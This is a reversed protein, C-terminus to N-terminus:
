SAEGLGPHANLEHLWCFIAPQHNTYRGRQFIMSHTVTPILKIGIYPFIFFPEFWWCFFYAHLRYFWFKILLVLCRVSRVLWFFTWHIPQRPSFSRSWNNWRLSPDLEVSLRPKWEGCCQSHSEMWRLMPQPQLSDLSINVHSSFM